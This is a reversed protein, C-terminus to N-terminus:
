GEATYNRIDNCEAHSIVICMTVWRYWEGTTGGITVPIDSRARGGITMTTGGTTVTTGGITVTTGGITM